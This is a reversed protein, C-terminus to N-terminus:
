QNLRGTFWNVLFWCTYPLLFRFSFITEWIYCQSVSHTYFPFTQKLYQWALGQKLLEKNVNVYGVFVFGLTRGYRHEGSKQIVVEKGFCLDSVTQKAKNGFDQNSEPCDIGELRIKVQKNDSTLVVITDGDTIKVVKGTFSDSASLIILLLLTLLKM